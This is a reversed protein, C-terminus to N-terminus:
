ASNHNDYQSCGLTSHNNYHCNYNESTPHIRHSGVTTTRRLCIPNLSLTIRHLVSLDASSIHDSGHNMFCVKWESMIRCKIFCCQLYFYFYIFKYNEMSRNILRDHPTYSSRGLFHRSLFIFPQSNSPPFLCAWGKSGIPM